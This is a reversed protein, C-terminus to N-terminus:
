SRKKGGERIADPDGWGRMRLRVMRVIRENLERWEDVREQAVRNMAKLVLEFV